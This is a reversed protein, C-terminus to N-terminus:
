KIKTLLSKLQDPLNIIFEQKQGALNIFSLKNAVLFVRNLNIKKNQLRTKATSYINDGVVPHGYALLHVRIQHTRGTKIKVELLTYNILKKLFSLETIASRGEKNLEGKKTMPLAAMKFGQESRKIQFSIANDVSKIQGYVLVIYQKIIKRQQFQKKLNDFSDQTKAIVMLGSVDKDLRHVIGPRAPDDGVKRIKPYQDFIIDALTPMNKNEGHVALGSPKNIVLYEDTEAIIDLSKQFIKEFLISSSKKEFFLNLNDDINIVDKEKILYHPKIQQNNIIILKQKILEQIQQRSFLQNNFILLSSQNIVLFKDLRQGAQQLSIIIKM